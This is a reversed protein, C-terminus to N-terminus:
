KHESTKDPVRVQRTNGCEGAGHASTNNAYHPFYQPFRPLPAGRSWFKRSLIIYRM